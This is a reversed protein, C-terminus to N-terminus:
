KTHFDVKDSHVILNLKEFDGAKFKFEESWVEKEAHNYKILIIGNSGMKLIFSKQSQDEIIPYSAKESGAYLTVDKIESGTKNIITLETGNSSCSGLNLIFLGTFLLLSFIRLM